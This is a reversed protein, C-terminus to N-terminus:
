ASSPMRSTVVHSSNLRTSKRDVFEPLETTFENHAMICMRAGSQIMATRVDPRKALMMDVLFAAEKLAYPNIKASAVIPFGHASVRQTYFAPVGAQGKPGFCVAQVPVESTVTLSSKDKRGVIEFRHGLSTAIINEKGPEVSGNSIRETASKLWFIEIPQDSGNIIQLKPSLGPSDADAGFVPTLALSGIISALLLAPILRM